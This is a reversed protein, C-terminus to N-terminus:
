GDTFHRYRKNMPSRVLAVLFVALCLGICISFLRIKNPYHYHRRAISMRSSPQGPTFNEDNDSLSTLGPLQPKESEM